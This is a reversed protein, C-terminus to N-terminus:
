VKSEMDREAYEKDSCENEIANLHHDGISLAALKESLPPDKSKGWLVLYLGIIIVIAGIVSGLYLIESLVFSSLIAVIVMSLPNFSTVFVPGKTRMIVGQIFYAVASSIVGSYAAALLKSDLHIAWAATNGKEIVLAFISGEMAGMCCILATLSLPAPYSKLTIAQLIIFASWCLCGVAMFMAGKIPDQKIITSSNTAHQVNHIWPLHLMPGTVLTMITAGGITVITGLIKVVSHLRRLNVKELRCMWAMMFAFAPLVNCMTTAFTATTYKMGTYYLNQDLVPELLGLLLIKIFISLTMKPRIKRDLVLAFPSIALTAITHRYVVLIHQNMGQNLAYKSIISNGAYGFQLLIVGLFPKAQNFFSGLSEYGM